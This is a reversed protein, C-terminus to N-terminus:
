LTSRTVPFFHQAQALREPTGVDMWPGHYVTGGVQRQAIAQRLLPALAAAEGQPNGPALSCWPPEFLRRHFVGFTAYTYRPWGPEDGLLGQPGLGFDGAPHHAPNPVLWLHALHEGRYVAAAPAADFAFHPALADAAAVWFVDNLQPLAHAIGGATELARGFRQGEHSYRLSPREPTAPLNAPFTAEIQEGLWATNILAHAVGARALGALTHALLPQGGVHLLPKPCCDTLPQMRQGRGASLVMAACLMFRM